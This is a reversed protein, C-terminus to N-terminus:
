IAVPPPFIESVKVSFGPVAPDASVVDSGSYRTSSGDPRYVHVAETGPDVVWVLTVGASLFEQVKRSVRSWRDHVSMVEIVFDPAIEIVGWPIRGNPFRGARVFSVDPKRITKPRNPICRYLCESDFTDGLRNAVVYTRLLSGFFVNLWSSKAGMGKRELTGEVLEYGKLGPHREFREVSMTRPKSQPKPANLTATTM